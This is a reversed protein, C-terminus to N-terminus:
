QALECYSVLDAQTHSEGDQNGIIDSICAVQKKAM